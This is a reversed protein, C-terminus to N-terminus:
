RDYITEDDQREFGFHNLDFSYFKDLSSGAASTFIEILRIIGQGLHRNRTMLGTREDAGFLYTLTSGNHVPSIGTISKIWNENSGWGYHDIALLYQACRITPGGLSHGVLHVPEDACWNPHFAKNTFDYGYRQHRYKTSHEFGYDVQVGKIQALLECARDHASSIPGVSAEYKKQPSNTKMAIGWYNLKGLEDGGFGFIGHVLVVPFKNKM